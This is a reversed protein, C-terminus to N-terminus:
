ITKVFEKLHNVIKKMAVNESEINKVSYITMIGGFQDNLRRLHKRLRQDPMRREWETQEIWIMNPLLWNFQEKISQCAVIDQMLRERFSTKAGGLVLIEKTIKHIVGADPKAFWPAEGGPFMIPFYKISNTYHVVDFIDGLKVQDIIDQIRNIMGEEFVWGDRSKRSQAKNNTKAIM